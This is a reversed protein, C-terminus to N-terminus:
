VEVIEQLDDEIDSSILIPGNSTENSNNINSNNSNNNTDNQIHNNPISYIIPLSDMVSMDPMEDISIMPTIQRQNPLYDGSNNNTSISQQNQDYFQNQLRRALSQSSNNFNLTPTIPNTRINTSTILIDDDNDNDNDENSIIENPNNHSISHTDPLINNIGGSEVVRSLRINRSTSM